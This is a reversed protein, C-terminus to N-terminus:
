ATNLQIYKNRIISRKGRIHDRAFRMCKNGTTLRCIELKSGRTDVARQEAGTTGEGGQRV